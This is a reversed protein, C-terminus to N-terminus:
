HDNKFLITIVANNQMSALISNLRPPFEMQNTTTTTLGIHIINFKYIYNKNSNILNQSLTSDIYM